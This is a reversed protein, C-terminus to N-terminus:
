NGGVTLMDKSLEEDELWFMAKLLFGSNVEQQYIVHGM